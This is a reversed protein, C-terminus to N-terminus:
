YSYISVSNIHPGCLIAEIFLRSPQAQDSIQHRVHMCTAQGEGEGQSGTHLSNYLFVINIVFLIDAPDVGVGGGRKKGKQKRAWIGCTVWFTRLYVVIHM